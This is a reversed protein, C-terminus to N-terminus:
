PLPPPPPVAVPYLNTYGHDSSSSNTTTTTPITSLGEMAPFVLPVDHPNANTTAALALTNLDVQQQLHLRHQWLALQSSPSLLPSSWASYHSSHHHHHNPMSLAAAVAAPTPPPALPVNHTSIAALASSTPRTTNSLPMTSSHAATLSNAIAQPAVVMDEVSVENTVAAGTASDSVIVDNQRMVARPTFRSPQRPLRCRRSSSSSSSRRRRRIPNATTAVAQAMSVSAQPVPPPAITALDGITAQLSQRPMFPAVASTGTGEQERLAQKIKEEATAMDVQVWAKNNNGSTSVVQRLIRGGREVQIVHLIRRVIAHKVPHRSTSMYEAKYPAVLQRFAVNGAYYVNPAGRGLLVDHPSLETILTSSASSARPLLATQRLSRPPLTDDMIFGLALRTINFSKQSSLLSCGSERDVNTTDQDLNGVSAVM